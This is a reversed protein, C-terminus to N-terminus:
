SDAKKFIVLSQNGVQHDLQQSNLRRNNNYNIVILSVFLICAKMSPEPIDFHIAVLIWFHSVPNESPISFSQIRSIQIPYIGKQIFFPENLFNGVSGKTHQFVITIVSITVVPRTV